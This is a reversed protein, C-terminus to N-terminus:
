RGYNGRKLYKCLYSIDSKRIDAYYSAELVHNYVFGILYMEDNSLATNRYVEIGKTNLSVRGDKFGDVEM